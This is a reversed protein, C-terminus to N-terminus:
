QTVQLSCTALCPSFALCISIQIKNAPIPVVTLPLPVEVCRRVASTYIFAVCAARNNNDEDEQEPDVREVPEPNDPDVSEVKISHAATRPCQPQESPPHGPAEATKQM